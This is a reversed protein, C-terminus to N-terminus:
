STQDTLDRDTAAVRVLAGDGYSRRWIPSGPTRGEVVKQWTEAFSPARHAPGRGDHDVHGRRQHLRQRDLVGGPERRLRLSGPALGDLEVRLATILIEANAAARSQDVLFSLWSPLYSYQMSVTAVDGHTAYELANAAKPDIWSSGTGGAVATGVLLGSLLFWTVAVTAAIAVLWGLRRPVVRVHPRALRRALWKTSRGIGLLLAAVGLGLWPALVWLWPVSPDM